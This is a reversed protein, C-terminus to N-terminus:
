RSLPKAAAIMQRLRSASASIRAREAKREEPSPLNNMEAFFQEADRGSLIPTNRIPKSM